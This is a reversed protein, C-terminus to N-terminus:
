PICIVTGSSFDTPLLTPNLMMLFARTTGLKVALSALTEGPQITYSKRLGCIQRTGAPPACYPTGASLAGPRLAPNSARMARYSVNNDVLLDVYTQGAQVRKAEYGIPCSLGVSPSSPLTPTVTNNDEVTGDPVPENPAVTNDDDATGDKVSQEPVCLVQDIRLDNPSVGPNREQLEYTTVGMAAAISQFSDGAKVTYREGSICTYVNSPLCIETGAPLSSFDVGPNLVTIAQATTGQALSVSALTDGEQWVYYGAGRPCVRHQSNSSNQM